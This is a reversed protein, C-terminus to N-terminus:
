PQTFLGQRVIPLFRPIKQLHHPESEQITQCNSGFKMLEVEKINMTGNGIVM